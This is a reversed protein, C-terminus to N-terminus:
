ECLNGLAGAVAALVHLQRAVDAYRGHHANALGVGELASEQTVIFRQGECFARSLTGETFLITGREAIDLIGGDTVELHRTVDVGRLLISGSENCAAISRRVDGATLHAGENVAADRAVAGM